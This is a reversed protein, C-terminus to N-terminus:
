WGACLQWGNAQYRIRCSEFDLSSVHVILRIKFGDAEGGEEVVGILREEANAGADRDDIGQRLGGVQQVECFGEGFIRGEDSVGVAMGPSRM